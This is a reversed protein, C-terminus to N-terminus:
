LCADQGSTSDAQALRMYRGRGGVRDGLCTHTDQLNDTSKRRVGLVTSEHIRMRAVEVARHM